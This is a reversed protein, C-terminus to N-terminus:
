EGKILFGGVSRNHANQLRRERASLNKNWKSAEPHKKFFISRENKKQQIPRRTSRSQYKGKEDYLPIGFRDVYAKRWERNGLANTGVLVFKKGRRKAQILEIQEEDEELCDTYTYSAPGDRKDNSRM